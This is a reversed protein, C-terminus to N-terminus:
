PFDLTISRSHSWSAGFKNAWAKVEGSHVNISIFLTKTVNMTLGAGKLIMSLIEWWNRMISVENPSLIITDEAYQLISVEVKDRGM